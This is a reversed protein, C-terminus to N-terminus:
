PQATVLEAPLVLATVDLTDLVREVTSINAAVKGQEIGEIVTQATQARDALEAQSWGLAQRETAVVWGLRELNHM